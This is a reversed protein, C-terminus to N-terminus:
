SGVVAEYLGEYEKLANRWRFKDAIAYGREVMDQLLPYRVYYQEIGEAIGEATPEVIIGAGKLHDEVGIVSTGIIPIRAAMAELLVLPQAEYLSPMVLADCAKYYKMVEERGQRGHMTVNTLGHAAIVGKVADREEGDGLLDLYVQRRTLKLAKILSHLNKQKSLRGVFLLRLPQSPEPKLPPRKLSFYTEDIGNHMVEARGTYGYVERVARLTQENLTIISAASQLVRKLILRKYLPLLVGAPGSPEFDIHLEAIYKFHRLKSILWVMEPTFAQGIHLHVVTNPKASRFLEAPFSPMIPAHGFVLGRLRKVLVGDEQKAGRVGGGVASTLVEVHYGDGALQRALDCVANEQGGLHPPYFASVQIINQARM